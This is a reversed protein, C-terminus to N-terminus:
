TKPHVIGLCFKRLIIFYASFNERSKIKHIRTKIFNKISTTEVDLKDFCQQTSSTSRM